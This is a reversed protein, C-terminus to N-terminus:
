GMDTDRFKHTLSSFVRDKVDEVPMDQGTWIRFAEAGQYLLM